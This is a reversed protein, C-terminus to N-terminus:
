VKGKTPKVIKGTVLYKAIAHYAESPDTYGMDVLKNFLKSSDAKPPTNFSNRTNVGFKNYSMKNGKRM